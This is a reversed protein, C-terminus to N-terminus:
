EAGARQLEALLKPQRVPERVLVRVRQGEELLARATARGLQGTAGVILITVHGGRCDGRDRAPIAGQHVSSGVVARLWSRMFVKGRPGKCTVGTQRPVIVKPSCTPSASACAMRSRASSRPTVKM